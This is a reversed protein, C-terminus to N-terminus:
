KLKVQIEGEYNAPITHLGTFDKEEGTSTPNGDYVHLTYSVSTDKLAFFAKGNEDTEPWSEICTGSTYCLQIYYGEAPDGDATLVVFTYGKDDGGKDGCAAVTAGFGFCLALTVFLTALKKFFKM